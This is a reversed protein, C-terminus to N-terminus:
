GQEGYRFDGAYTRRAMELREVVWGESTQKIICIYLGLGRASPAGRLREQIFWDQSRGSWGSGVNVREAYVERGDPTCYDVGTKSLEIIKLAEAENM